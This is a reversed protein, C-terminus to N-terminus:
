GLKRKTEAEAYESLTRIQEFVVTTAQDLDDPLESLPIPRGFMVTVGYTTENFWDSCWRTGLARAIRFLLTAHKPDRDYYIGVPLAAFPLESKKGALKGIMLAGAFFEERRLVNDRVLKGQPFVVLSSDREAKLANIATRVSASPNRDHHVAIGGLWAAFPARLGTIQNIAMLFRFHMLGFVTTVVVADKEIQHNPMLLLRGNYKLNSKGIITLRGVRLFMTIRGVILRTLRAWFSVRPTLHGPETLKKGESIWHHARAIAFAVVVLLVGAVAFITTTTTM